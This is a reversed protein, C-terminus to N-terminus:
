LQVVDVSILDRRYCINLLSTFIIILLKGEYSDESTNARCTGHLSQGVQMWFSDLCQRYLAKWFERFWFPTYWTPMGCIRMNFAYITTEIDHNIGGRVLKFILISHIIVGGALSKGSSQMKAVQLAANRGIRPRTPEHKSPERSLHHKENQLIPM